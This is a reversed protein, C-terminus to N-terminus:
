ARADTTEGRTEGKPQSEHSTGTWDKKAATRAAGRQARTARETVLNLEVERAYKREHDM